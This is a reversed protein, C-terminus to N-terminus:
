GRAYRQVFHRLIRAPQDVQATRVRDMVEDAEHPPFYGANRYIDIRELLAAVDLEPHFQTAYLNERIRFMQVPCTSSSALVVAGPPLITCAEKHGVFGAFSPPLGALLPDAAGADNVTITVASIPEAFTRDIVAGQHKGLTGVGYCAGLFPVDAAVVRDLLEGIEREVRRQTDSKLEEPDSSNFPSGGVMIGSYDDLDILPLPGAEARIRHLHEPELGASNLFSQYERETAVDEARTSLLLFPLM